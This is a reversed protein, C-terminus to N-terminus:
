ERWSHDSQRAHVKTIYFGEALEDSDNLLELHIFTIAVDAAFTGLHEVNYATVLDRKAGDTALDVRSFFVERESGHTLGIMWRHWDAKRHAELQTLM